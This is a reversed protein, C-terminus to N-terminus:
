IVKVWAPAIAGRLCVVGDEKYARIREDTIKFGATKTM